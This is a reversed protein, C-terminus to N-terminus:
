SGEDSPASLRGSPIVFVQRIPRASGSGGAPTVTLEILKPLHGPADWTPQWALQYGGASEGEEAEEALEGYRFQVQAVDLLPEAVAPRGAAAERITQLSRTLAPAGEGPEVQYRVFGALREDEASSPDARVVYFAMADSAFDASLPWQDDAQFVFASALDREMRELSLRITQLDETITTARRWATLGGRLHVTLGVLLMSFIVSAM